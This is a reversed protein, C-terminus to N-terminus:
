STAAAPKIATLFVVKPDAGVDHVVVDRFGVEDLERLITERDYCEVRPARGLWRMLTILAGYPVWTGGLCVNSAVLHGGPRLLEFLRELTGRRDEVLHLISYAWVGDFTGTRISLPGELTGRHFTVNIVGKAEKKGEAIRVMESSVDMAHIHGAFPAMELALTGTGCGIEFITADPTLRERTIAKKREFAATDDVPKAAYKEAIGDWFEADPRTTTM